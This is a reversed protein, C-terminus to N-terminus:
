FDEEKESKYHVAHKTKFGAAQHHGGGGMAMAIKSVDPAPQDGVPRSRLQYTWKTVGEVWTLGMGGYRLALEEGVESCIAPMVNAGRIRLVQPPAPRFGENDVVLGQGPVQIEVWFSNKVASEVLQNKYRAIPTGEGILGFIMMSQASQVAVQIPLGAEPEPLPNFGFIRDWTEFDMPYSRLTATFERIGHEKNLWLDRDQIYRIFLPAVEIPHFHDWALMAGSRGMDFLFSTKKTKFRAYDFGEPTKSCTTELAEENFTPFSTDFHDQWELM